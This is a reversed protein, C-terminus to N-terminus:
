RITLLNEITEKKFHSLEEQKLLFRQVDDVVRGWDLQQLRKQIHAQWNIETVIGNEWGSQIHAQNLMALNPPAWQTQSLYWCLDYWDRRKIYERENLKIEVAYAEATMDRRIAGLYKRFDYQESHRELAFFLDESYRPLRYLIRLATGDHFALPIMAGARQLSQLIRMQLYERVAARQAEPTFARL